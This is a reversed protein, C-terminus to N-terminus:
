INYHMECIKSVYKKFTFIKRYRLQKYKHLQVTELDCNCSLHKPADHKVDLSFLQSMPIASGESAVFPPFEFPLAPPQVINNVKYANYYDFQEQTCNKEKMRPGVFNCLIKELIALSVM